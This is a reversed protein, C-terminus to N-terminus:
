LAAAHDGMEDGGQGARDVLEFLSDQIGRRGDLAPETEFPHLVGRREVAGHVDAIGAELKGRDVGIEKRAAPVRQRRLHQGQRHLRRLRGDLLDAGLRAVQEHNGVVIRAVGEVQRADGLQHADEVHGPEVHAHARDVRGDLRGLRDIQGVALGHRQLRHHAGAPAQADLIEIGARDQEVAVERGARRADQLVEVLLVQQRRHVRAPRHPALAVVEAAVLLDGLAEALQQADIRPASPTSKALPAPKSATALWASAM